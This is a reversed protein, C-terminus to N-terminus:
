MRKFVTVRRKFEEIDTFQSAIHIPSHVSTIYIRKPKWWTFGGKTPVQIPYRDILKLFLSKNHIPIELNDFLVAEQGSYGNFWQIGDPVDFIDPESERAFRTKGSGPAGYIFTVQPPEHDGKILKARKHERYQEFSRSYILACRESTEEYIDMVTRTPDQDILSKVVQDGRRLGNDMPRQGFEVLESQKSCYVQNQTFTGRMQDIHATPFLKKWATLRMVRDAYAFAQLHTRNTTPCVEKGYAFYSLKDPLADYSDVQYITLVAGRFASNTVPKTVPM